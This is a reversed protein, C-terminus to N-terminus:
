HLQINVFFSSVRSREPLKNGDLYAFAAFIWVLTHWSLTIPFTCIGMINRIYLHVRCLFADNRKINM